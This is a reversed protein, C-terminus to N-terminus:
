PALFGLTDFDGNGYPKSVTPHHIPCHEHRLNHVGGITCCYGMDDLCGQSLGAAMLEARRGRVWWAVMEWQSGYEGDNKRVMRSAASECIPHKACFHTYAIGDDDVFRFGKVLEQCCSSCLDAGPSAAVAQPPPSSAPPVAELVEREIAALSESAQDGLKEMNELYVKTSPTIAIPSLGQVGETVVRLMQRALMELERGLHEYVSSLAQGAKRFVEYMADEGLERIALVQGDKVLSLMTKSPNDALDVGVHFSLHPYPEGISSRFRRGTLDSGIAPLEGREFRPAVQARWWELERQDKGWAILGRICRQRLDVDTEAHREEIPAEGPLAAHRKMGFVTEAIADLADGTATHVDGMSVIKPATYESM